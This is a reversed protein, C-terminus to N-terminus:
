RRTRRRRPGRPSTSEPRVIPYEKGKVVLTDFALALRARGKVKGSRVASTVRGRVESGAPAVVREGVRVDETLKAIVADNDHSTASSVSGQLELTLPTGEPIVIAVPRPAAASKGSSGAKADAVASDNGSGQCGALLVAAILAGYVRATM